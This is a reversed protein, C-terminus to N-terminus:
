RKAADPDRSPLLDPTVPRVEDEPKPRASYEREEDGRNSAGRQIADPAIDEADSPDGELHFQQEIDDASEAADGSGVNGVDADDPSADEGTVERTVEDTQGPDRSQRDPSRRKRKM